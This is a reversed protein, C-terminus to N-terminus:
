LSNILNSGTETTGANLCLGGNQLVPSRMARRQGAVPTLWHREIAVAVSRQLLTVSVVVREQKATSVLIGELGALPGEDLRVRQGIEFYPWPEVLAGSRVAIQLASIEADAIPVPTKGIGVMHMV